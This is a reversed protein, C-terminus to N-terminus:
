EIWILFQKNDWHYWDYGMLNSNMQKAAIVAEDGSNSLLEGAYIKTAKEGGLSFVDLFTRAPPSTSSIQLREVDIELYNCESVEYCCILYGNKILVSPTSEVNVGSFFSDKGTSFAYHNEIKHEKIKFVKLLFHPNRERWDAVPALYYQESLCLYGNEGDVRIGATINLCSAQSSTLFEEPLRDEKLECSDLKMGDVSYLELIIMGLKRRVLLLDDDYSFLQLPIGDEMRLLVLKKMEGTASDSYFIGGEGKIYSTNINAIDKDYYEVNFATTAYYTDKLKVCGNKVYVHSQLREKIRGDIQLNPLCAFLKKGGGKEVVLQVEGTELETEYHIDSVAEKHDPYKKKYNDEEKKVTKKTMIAPKLHYGTVQIGDPCFRFSVKDPAFFVSGYEGEVHLESLINRDGYIDQLILPEKKGQYTIYGYCLVLSLVFLLGVILVTHNKIFRSM